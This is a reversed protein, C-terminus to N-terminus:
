RLEGRARMRAVAAALEQRALRLRSYATNLPLELAEAIEPVSFDDFDAMVLVARREEAVGELARMLLAQADGLALQADPSSTAAIGEFTSDIHEVRHRALRRYDAAVRAAIAFLWPRLSRARDFSELKRYVIVFTDHTLDELDRAAVGLRRLSRHVYDLQGGFLERFLRDREGPGLAPSPASAASASATPGTVDNVAVIQV